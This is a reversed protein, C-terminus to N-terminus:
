ARGSRAVSRSTGFGDYPACTLQDEIKFTVKSQEFASATARKQLSTVRRGSEFSSM